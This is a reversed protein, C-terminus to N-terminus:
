LGLKSKLHKIAEEKLERIKKEKFEIDMFLFSILLLCFGVVINNPELDKVFSIIALTLFVLIYIINM